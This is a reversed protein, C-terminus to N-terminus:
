RIGLPDNDASGDPPPQEQGTQRALAEIDRKKQEIFAKLVAQKEPPSKDPDGLTAVLTDGERATFQAGFTDRLLPLIQNSVTAIYKTRAVAADRPAMGLEKRGADLLQGATTYTAENALQDLQSVVQELGPLKASMSKYAALAEGQLKGAATDAAKGANDIPVTNVVQGNRDRVVMQTGLNLNSVGPPSLKIGDPTEAPVLGGNNSPQMAVWNGDADQGWIVSNGFKERANPNRLHEIQARKYETELANNPDMEKLKQGLLAEIIPGYQKMAWPNNAAALLQALSPGSQQQGPPLAGANGGAMVSLKDMDPGGQPAAQAGQQVAAPNIEIWGQDGTAGAMGATEAYQYTKGDAGRRIEGPKGPGSPKGVPQMPMPAGGTMSQPATLTSIVRQADPSASVSQGPSLPVRRTQAMGISPDLSAVQDDGGKLYRAERKARNAEAPRLFNNVIAAAAGGTDPAAQIAKYAAAEPGQLETMLFDLQTGMDSVPKGVQAAYAELAKRRPGTWQALGYGGRSGPVIPNTENIGPNLGSEDQFNMVFADAVQPSMGRDILGQKISAASDGAASKVRTDAYDAATPAGSAATGDASPAPPFGALAGVIPNFAEAASKQGAEEAADARHGLVNAVIGDGLANLGEGVNRPAKQSSMLAHIIARQQALEQPTKATADGGFIFSPIAM